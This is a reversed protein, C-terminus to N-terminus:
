KIIYMAISASVAANLSEVRGETMPLRITKKSKERLFQAVGHAENGVTLAIKGERKYSHISEGGMDLCIIDYGDLFAFVDKENCENISIYFVGGMSARVTKPSYADCCDMCIVNNIGVAAASRFITGLNGSDAIGSLLIIIDGVVKKPIPKHAVAIVGTPKVTDAVSDFISNPIVYAEIDFKNELYCLKDYESEKIYLECVEINQPIDKVLNIGECVFVGERSRIKKDKFLSRLRKVKENQASTIIM